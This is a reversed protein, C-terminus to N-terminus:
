KENKMLGCEELYLHVHRVNRFFGGKSKLYLTRFTQTDIKGHERLKVLLRRQSRVKHIWVTKRAVRSYKSGKRSGQGTRQGRHKRQALVRARGRSAGAVHKKKILKEAILGRIDSKIIAEAIDSLRESDFWVKYPSCKLLGAAIRRQNKLSM